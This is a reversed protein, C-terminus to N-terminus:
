GGSSNCSRWNIHQLHFTEFSEGMKLKRTRPPRSTLTRAKRGLIHTKLGPRSRHIKLPSLIRLVVKKPPSTFGDAGQRLIKHCTLSGKLYSLSVSLCFEPAMKRGTEGWKLILHKQQLWLLSSQNIFRSHNSSLHSCLLNSFPRLQLPRKTRYWEIVTVLLDGYHGWMRSSLHPKNDYTQANRV